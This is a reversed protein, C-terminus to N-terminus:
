AHSKYHSFFLKFIFYYVEVGLALIRDGGVPRAFFLLFFNYEM